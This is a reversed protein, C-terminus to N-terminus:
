RDPLSPLPLSIGEGLKDPSNPETLLGGEGDEDDGLSGIVVGDPDLIEEGESFRAGMGIGISPGVGMGAGSAPGLLYTGVGSVQGVMPVPGQDPEVDMGMEPSESGEEWIPMPSQTMVRNFVGPDYTASSMSGDDM